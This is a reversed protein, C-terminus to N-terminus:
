NIKTEVKKSKIFLFIKEGGNGKRALLNFVLTVARKKRDVM